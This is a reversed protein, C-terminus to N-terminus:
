VLTFEQEPLRGGIAQGDMFRDIYCEGILKYYKPPEESIPTPGAPCTSWRDNECSPEASPSRTFREPTYVRESARTSARAYQGFPRSKTNRRASKRTPRRSTPPSTASLGARLKFGLEPMGSCERLIVPVSCSYIICVLDGALTQDPCLGFLEDEDPEPDALFARRNWCVERARTLYKKLDSDANVVPDRLLDGIRIDGHRDEKKLMDLCAKKDGIDLPKGGNHAILTRWLQDPLDEIRHDKDTRSDKWGGMLLADRNIIEPLMRDSRERIRGLVLGQVTLSGNYTETLLIRKRLPTNADTTIPEEEVRKNGPDRRGFRPTDNRAGKSANFVTEEVLSLAEKRGLFVDDPSGFPAKDLQSIWSPLTTDVRRREHENLFVFHWTHVPAWHKCLIDLSGTVKVTYEVFGAFVDLVSATYNPIPFGPKKLALSLVGYIIDRPDGADFAGLRIILYDLDRSPRFNTLPDSHLDTHLHHLANAGYVQLTELRVDTIEKTRTDPDRLRKMVRDLAILFNTYNQSKEGFHLVKDRAFFVEQIIWRRAFWRCRMLDLFSLVKKKEDKVKLLDSHMQDQVMETIFDMGLNSIENAEGLWIRVKQAKSYIESMRLLQASKENNDKQNM